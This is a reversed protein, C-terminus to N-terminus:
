LNRNQALINVGSLIEATRPPAEKFSETVQNKDKLFKAKKIAKKIEECKLERYRSLLSSVVKKGEAKSYQYKKFVRNKIVNKEQRLKKAYMCADRLKNTMAAKKTKCDANKYAKMHLTQKSVFNTVDNTALGWNKLTHFLRINGETVALSRLTEWLKGEVSKTKLTKPDSVTNLSSLMNNM